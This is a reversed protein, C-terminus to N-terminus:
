SAKARSTSSASKRCSGTPDKSAATAAKDRAARRRLSPPNYSSCRITAASGASERNTGAKALSITALILSRPTAVPAPLEGPFM